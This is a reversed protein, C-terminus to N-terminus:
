GRILTYMITLYLDAHDEPTTPPFPPLRAGRFIALSGMDLWQSGSREQVEVSQVQGNRTVVMHLRVTGDEGNAAAQQPYYAHRDWWEHLQQLWDSGVQAGEVRVFSDLDQRGGPPEGRSNRAAPGLGLDLAAGTRATREKAPAPPPAQM